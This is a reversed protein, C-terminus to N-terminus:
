DLPVAQSFTEKSPHYRWHVQVSRLVRSLDFEVPRTQGPQVFGLQSMEPLGFTYEATVSVSHAPANGNNTVRVGTLRFWENRWLAPDEPVAVGPKAARMAMVQIEPRPAYLEALDNAKKSARTAAVLAIVAVVPGSIAGMPLLTDGLVKWGDVRAFYDKINETVVRRGRGAAYGYLDLDGAGRLESDAEAAIVDYGSDRLAAAIVDSYHEDLLLRPTMGPTRAAGEM